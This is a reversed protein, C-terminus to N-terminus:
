LLHQQGEIQGERPEAAEELSENTIVWPCRLQLRQRVLPGLQDHLSQGREDFLLDDGATGDFIEALFPDAMAEEGLALWRAVIARDRDAGEGVLIRGQREMVASSLADLIFTPYIEAWLSIQEDVIVRLEPLEELVRFLFSGFSPPVYIADDPDLKGQEELLGELEVDEGYGEVV